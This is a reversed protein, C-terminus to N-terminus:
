TNNEKQESLLRVLRSAIVRVFGDDDAKLYHRVVLRLPRTQEDFQGTLTLPVAHFLGQSGDSMLTFGRQQPETDTGWLIQREEFASTWELTAVSTGEIILRGAWSGAEDRWVLLEGDHGFLRATQLTEAQLSPSHERAVDHSTILEEGDLRGWIVGEDTHALLYKLRHTRMQRSLWTTPEDAFGDMKITECTAATKIITRKM